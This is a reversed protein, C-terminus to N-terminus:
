QVVISGSMAAGHVTCLYNFTGATTFTRTFTGSSQTASSPGGTFTVNHQVSGANWTWTVTTGATVTRPSPNFFNNGVRVENPGPNQNNNDPGSTSGDGCSAAVLLALVLATVRGAYRKAM